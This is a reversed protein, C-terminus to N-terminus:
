LSYVYVHRISARTGPLIIITSEAQELLSILTYTTWEMITPWLVRRVRPPGFRLPGLQTFTLLRM